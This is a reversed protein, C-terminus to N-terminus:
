KYLGSVFMMILSLVSLALMVPGRILDVKRFHYAHQTFQNTKDDLADGIFFYQWLSFPDTQM